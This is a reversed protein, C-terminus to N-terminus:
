AIREGKKSHWENCVGYPSVNFNGFSCQPVKPNSIKNAKVPVTRMVLGKRTKVEREVFKLKPELRYYVCSRCAPPEHEYDQAAKAGAAILKMKVPIAM